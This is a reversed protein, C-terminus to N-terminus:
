PWIQAQKYHYWLLFGTHWRAFHAGSKELHHVHSLKSSDVSDKLTNRTGHKYKRGLSIKGKLCGHKSLSLSIIFSIWLSCGTPQVQKLETPGASWRYVEVNVINDKSLISLIRSFIQYITDTRFSYARMNIFNVTTINPYSVATISITRM